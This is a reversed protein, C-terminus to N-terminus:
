WDMKHRDWQSWVRRALEAFDMKLSKMKVWYLGDENDEKRPKRSLEAAKASKRQNTNGGTRGM